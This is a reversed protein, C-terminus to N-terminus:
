RRKPAGPVHGAQWCLACRTLASLYISPYISLYISPYISPNIPLYLFLCREIPCSLSLTLSANHANQVSLRGRNRITRHMLRGRSPPRPHYLLRLLPHPTGHVTPSCPPRPAPPNPCFPRPLLPRAHRPSPRLSLYLCPDVPPPKPDERAHARAWWGLPTQLSGLALAASRGPSSNCRRPAPRPLRRAHQARMVGPRTSSVM